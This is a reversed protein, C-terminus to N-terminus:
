KTSPLSVVSVPNGDTSLESETSVQNAAVQQVAMRAIAILQKHLDYNSDIDAM